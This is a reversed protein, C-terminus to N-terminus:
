SMNMLNCDLIKRIIHKYIEEDTGDDKFNLLIWNNHCGLTQSYKYNYVRGYIPHIVAEKSKSDLSIIFNHLCSLKM